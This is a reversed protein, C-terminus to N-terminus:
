RRLMKTRDLPCGHVSANTANERLGYFFFMCHRLALNEIQLAARSRFISSRTALLTALTDRSILMPSFLPILCRGDVFGGMRWPPKLSGALPNDSKHEERTKRFSQLWPLVPERESM